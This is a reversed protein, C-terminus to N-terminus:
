EDNSLRRIDKKLIESLRKRSRMSLRMTKSHSRKLGMKRDWDHIQQQSKLSHGMASQFSELQEKVQEGGNTTPKTSTCSVHRALETVDDNDVPGEDIADQVFVGYDEDDSCEGLEFSGYGTSAEHDATCKKEEGDEDKDEFLYNLFALTTRRRKSPPPGDDHQNGMKADVTKYDFPLPEAPDPLTINQNNSMKFSLSNPNLIHDSRSSEATLSKNTLKNHWNREAKLRELLDRQSLLLSQFTFDTEGKSELPPM